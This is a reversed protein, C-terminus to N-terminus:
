VSNWNKKRRSQEAILHERAARYYLRSPFNFLQVHLDDTHFISESPNVDSERYLAQNTREMGFRANDDDDQDDRVDCIVSRLAKSYDNIAENCVDSLDQKSNM